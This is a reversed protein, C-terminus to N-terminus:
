GSVTHPTIWLRRRQQAFCPSPMADALAPQRQARPRTLVRDAADFAAALRRRELPEIVQQHHEALAEFELANREDFELVGACREARRLSQALRHRPVEDRRLQLDGARLRSPRAM